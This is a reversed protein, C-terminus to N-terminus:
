LSERRLWTSSTDSTQQWGAGAAEVARRKGSDTVHVYRMTTVIDVHGMVEKVASVPADGDCLHRTM